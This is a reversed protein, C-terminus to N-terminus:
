NAILKKYILVEKNLIKDPYYKEFFLKRSNTKFTKVQTKNKLLSTLKQYIDDSDDPDVVYGNKKDTIFESHWEKNSTIIASGIAAAELLVFGSMLIISINANLLFNKIVEQPQWGLLFINKNIYKKYKTKIDDKLPGEGCFVIQFDVKNLILKDLVPFLKDIYKYKNLFGINVILPINKKIKFKKYLDIKKFNHLYIDPAIIWPHVIVNGKLKNKTIRLIYERTFNNPALITTSNKLVFEEMKYSILKSSYFYRENREQSLRNDGGLSVVFPVKRIKAALLGILSGLYPQRGRIVKINNKKIFSVLKITNSFIIILYQLPKIKNLLPFRSFKKITINNGLKLNLDQEEWTFHFVNKFYGNPNYLYAILDFNGKAELSKLSSDVINILNPM